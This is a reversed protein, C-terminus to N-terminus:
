RWLNWEDRSYKERVLARTREHPWDDLRETCGWASSLVARLRVPDIDANRIFDGHTRRARYDPQRRPESLYQGVTDLDFHHLITGHFLVHGRRRKQANGSIKLGCIALDSVGQHVIGSLMTGLARAMVGLVFRNTGEITQTAPHLRKNLILVHNLCGSGQLVTGGGSCRRLVPVGDAACRDEIVEERVKGGAGLVVFHSTSEWFRLTEGLEDAEAADLLAEDLAVNEQPTSLTLDLHKV